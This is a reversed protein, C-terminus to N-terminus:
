AVGPKLYKRLLPMSYALPDKPGRVPYISTGTFDQRQATGNDKRKGNGWAVELVVTIYISEPVPRTSSGNRNIVDQVLDVAVQLEREMRTAKTPDSQLASTPVGTFEAYEEVTVTPYVWLSNLEDWVM